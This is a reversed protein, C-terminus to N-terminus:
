RPRKPIRNSRRFYCRRCKRAGAEFFLPNMQCAGASESQERYRINLGPSVACIFATGRAPNRNPYGFADEVHVPPARSHWIAILTRQSGWSPNCAARPLPSSRTQLCASRPQKANASLSARRKGGGVLQTRLEPRERCRRAETRSGGVNLHRSDPEKVSLLGSARRTALKKAALKTRLFTSRVIRRMM